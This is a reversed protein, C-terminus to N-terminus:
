RTRKPDLGKIPKEDKAVAPIEVIKDATAADKYNEPQQASAERESAELAKRQAAADATQTTSTM